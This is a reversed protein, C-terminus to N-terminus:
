HGYAFKQKLYYYNLRRLHATDYYHYLAFDEFALASSRNKEYIRKGSSIIQFLFLPSSKKDVLTLDLDAPFHLKKLLAYVKDKQGPLNKEMVVALDFDSKQHTQKKQYSGLFYASIIKPNGALVQATKKALDSGGVQYFIQPAKGKKLIEGKQLLRKLHRHLAVKSIKLGRAIDKPREPGRSKLYNLVLNDTNLM